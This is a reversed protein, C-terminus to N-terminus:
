SLTLRIYPVNDMGEEFSHITIVSPLALHTMTLALWDGVPAHGSQDRLENPLKLRHKHCYEILERRRSRFHEVNVTCDALSGSQYFAQALKTTIPLLVTEIYEIVGQEKQPGPCPIRAPNSRTHKTTPESRTEQLEDDILSDISTTM